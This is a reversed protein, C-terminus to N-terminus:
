RMGFVSNLTTPPLRGNTLPAMESRSLEIQQFSELCAGCSRLQLHVCNGTAVLEATMYPATAPQMLPMGTPYRREIHPVSAAPPVLTDKTACTPILGDGFGMHKQTGVQVAPKYGQDLLELVHQRDCRLCVLSSGYPSGYGSFTGSRHLADILIRFSTPEFHM